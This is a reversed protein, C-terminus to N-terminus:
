TRGSNQRWNNWVVLSYILCLGVVIIISSFESGPLTYWAAILVLSKFLILAPKVGIARMAAAMVPNLERGGRGLIRVTLIVDVINLTVLLAFLVVFLKTM